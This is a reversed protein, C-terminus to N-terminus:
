IKPKNSIASYLNTIWGSILQLTSNAKILNTSALFQELFWLGTVVTFAIAQYKLPILGFIFGFIDTPAPAIPVVPAVQAFLLASTCLLLVATMM